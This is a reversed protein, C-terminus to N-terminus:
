IYFPFNKCKAYVNKEFLHSLKIINAHLHFISFMERLWTRGYHTVQSTKSYKQRCAMHQCLHFNDNVNEYVNEYVIETVNNHKIRLYIWFNNM